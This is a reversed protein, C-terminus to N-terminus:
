SAKAKSIEQILIDINAADSINEIKNEENVLIIFPVKKVFYNEMIDKTIIFHINANTKIHDHDFQDHSIIIIRHDSVSNLLSEIVRHCTSCTNSAFVLVTYATEHNALKVMQGKHNRMRFLPAEQNIKLELEQLQNKDVRFRLLFEKVLKTLSFMFVMQVMIFVWLLINSIELWKNM